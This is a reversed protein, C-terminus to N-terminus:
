FGAPADVDGDLPRGAAAQFQRHGVAADADARLVEFADELGEDLAIGSM